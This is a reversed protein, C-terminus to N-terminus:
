SKGLSVFEINRIFIDIKETGALRSNSFITFWELNVAGDHSRAAFGFQDLDVEVVSWANNTIDNAVFKSLPYKQEIGQTNKLSVGILKQEGGKRGKIEFRLKAKDSIVLGHVPLPWHHRQKTFVIGCDAETTYAGRNHSSARFNQLSIELCCPFQREDFRFRAYGNSSFGHISSFFRLDRCVRGLKPHWVTRGSLVTSVIMYAVVFCTVYLFYPPGILVREGVHLSLTPLSTTKDLLALCPITLLAAIVNQIVAQVHKNM